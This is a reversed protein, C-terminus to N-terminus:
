SSVAGVLTTNTVILTTTKVSRKFWKFTFPKVNFIDNIKNKQKSNNRKVTRSGNKPVRYTELYSKYDKDYIILLNNILNMLCTLEADQRAISM